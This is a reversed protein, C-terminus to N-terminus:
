DLWDRLGALYRRVHTEALPQDRRLAADGSMEGLAAHLRQLDRGAADGDLQEEWDVLGRLRREIAADLREIALGM